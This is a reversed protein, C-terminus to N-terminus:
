NILSTASYTLGIKTIKDVVAAGVLLFLFILFSQPKHPCCNLLDPGFVQVVLLHPDLCSRGAVCGSPKLALGEGGAQHIKKPLILEFTNGQMNELLSKSLLLPPLSALVERRNVWSRVIKCIHAKGELSQCDSGCTIHLAM